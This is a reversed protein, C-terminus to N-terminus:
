LTLGLKHLIDVRGGALIHLRGLVDGGRDRDKRRRLQSVIFGAEDRSLPPVKLVYVMDKHEDNKVRGRVDELWQVGDPDILISDPLPNEEAGLIRKRRCKVTARGCSIAAIVVGKKLSKAYELAATQGFWHAVVRIAHAHLVRDRENKMCTMGLMSEFEDIAVVVPIETVMTLERLVACMADSARRPGSKWNNDLEDSIQVSLQVLDGVTSVRNGAVEDIGSKIKGM